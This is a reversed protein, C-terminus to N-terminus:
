CEKGVRREESRGERNYDYIKKEKNWISSSAFDIGMRVERKPDYGCEIISKEVLQAAADNLVNPAWAGEDGKGYTFKKDIKEVTKKLEKHIQSNITVAEM